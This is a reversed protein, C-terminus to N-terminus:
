KSLEHKQNAYILLVLSAFILIIGLVTQETVPEHLFFIGLLAAIM